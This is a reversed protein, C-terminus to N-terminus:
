IKPELQLVIRLRAFAVAIQLVRATVDALNARYLHLAIATVTPYIEVVTVLELYLHAIARAIM